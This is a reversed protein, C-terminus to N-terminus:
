SASSWAGGVRGACVREPARLLRRICGCFVPVSSQKCSDKNETDFKGWPLCTLWELYTRRQGRALARLPRGQPCHRCVLRPTHSGEITIRALVLPSPSAIRWEVICFATPRMLGAWALRVSMQISAQM